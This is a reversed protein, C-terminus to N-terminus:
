VLGPPTTGGTQFYGINLRDRCFDFLEDGARSEESYSASCEAWTGM